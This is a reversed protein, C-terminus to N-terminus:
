PIAETFLNNTAKSVSWNLQTVRERITSYNFEAKRCAKAMSMREGTALCTFMRNRSQNNSQEERTAWRLNGPVYGKSNDCRELTFAPSPKPGVEALFVAFDDFSSDPRRSKYDDYNPNNPNLCRQRMLMWTRHEPTGSMGHTVPRTKQSERWLCGCSTTNGSRMTSAALPQDRVKGCSCRCLWLIKRHKDKGIPGLVTLRGFVQGTLDTAKGHLPIFITESM